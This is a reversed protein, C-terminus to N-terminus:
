SSSDLYFLLKLFSKSTLVPYSGRDGQILVVFRNNSM